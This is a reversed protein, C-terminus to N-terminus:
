ESRSKECITPSMPSCIGDEGPDFEHLTAVCRGCRMPMLSCIGDEVPEPVRSAAVVGISGTQREGIAPEKDESAGRGLEM